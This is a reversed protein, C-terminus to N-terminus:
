TGRKPYTIQGKRAADVRALGRLVRRDRALQERTLRLRRRWNPRERGTGPLNQREVEGWLDELNVLVLWADSAALYRLLADLVASITPPGQLWGERRLTREVRDRIEARRRREVAVEDAPLLGAGAREPIDRGTWYAAFPPMDHTNVSAVSGPTVPPPLRPGPGEMAYQAVYLPRIGHRELSRNVASPVTGLNEGVVVCRHRASELTLIAYLEDPRYRVYVGEAARSGGPIWFLRHLAMVHDLRLISAFRMHARLVEIFRDYGSERVREPHPPPFGWDQGSTFVTDPPAGVSVGTVFDEPHRWVDYGSPHSGIPLDLYLRVGRASAAQAADGLQADAMRQAEAFVAAAQPDVAPLPPVKGAGAGPWTPWEGRAETAARFAAYAAGEPGDPAGTPPRQERVARLKLAAVRSYAVRDEERVAELESQFAPGGESGPGGSLDLFAESWFTRSVPSYPSPEYVRGLFTALLPLTGVVSGGRAAVWESISALDTYDGIGWSHSSTLAHLPVFVGWRRETDPPEHGRRPASVLLGEPRGSAQDVRVRHYGLPLRDPLRLAKAVYRTGGVGAREVTPARDLRWSLPVVRGGELRLSGSWRGRAEAAPLRVVCRAAAGGWAVSVPELSHDWARALARALAKPADAPGGLPEGLARLVRLM